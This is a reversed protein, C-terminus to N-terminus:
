LEGIALYKMQELARLGDPGPERGFRSQEYGVSQTLSIAPGLNVTPDAPNGIVPRDFAAGGAVSSHQAAVDIV